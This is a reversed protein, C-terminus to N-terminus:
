IVMKVAGYIGADNGLVAPKIKVDESAFFAFKKYQKKIEDFLFDGAKSVGGGILYVEPDIITSIFTMTRAIMKAASRVADLALIDNEKAADFVDKATIKDKQRLISEENSNALRKKAESIIGEASAYQQLHGYKGCNCQEKEDPNIQLHGLEGAAGFAGSTIEGNIIM